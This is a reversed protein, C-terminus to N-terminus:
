VPGKDTSGAETLRSANKKWKVGQFLSVLECAGYIINLVVPAYTDLFVSALITVPVLLFSVILGLSGILVSTTFSAVGPRELLLFLALAHAILFGGLLFLIVQERRLYVAIASLCLLSIVSAAICSRLLTGQDTAGIPQM